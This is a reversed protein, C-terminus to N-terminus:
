CFPSMVVGAARVLAVPVRATVSKAVAVPLLSRGYGETRRVGRVRSPPAERGAAEDFVAFGFVAFWFLTVLPGHCM